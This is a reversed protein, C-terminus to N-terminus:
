CKNSDDSNGEAIETATVTADTPVKFLMRALGEADDKDYARMTIPSAWTDIQTSFRKIERM